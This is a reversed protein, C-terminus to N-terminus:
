ITVVNSTQSNHKKQYAILGGLKDRLQCPTTIVPAFKDEQVEACYQIARILKAEGMLDLLEQVAKRQTKNGYNLTPNLRERFETLIKNISDKGTDAVYTAIGELTNGEEIHTAVEVDDPSTPKEHTFSMPEAELIVDARTDSLSMPKEKWYSKDMLTYVNVKQRKTKEDRKREVQIIGWEELKDIAKSVTNHSGLALEEQLLKLSPWCEQKEKNAHRCLSMYVGTANIGCLRAYGNLYEDDMRFMEKRRADRIKM